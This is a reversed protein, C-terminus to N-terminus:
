LMFIKIGLVLFRAWWFYMRCKRIGHSGLFLRQSMNPLKTVLSGNGNGAPPQSFSDLSCLRVYMPRYFSLNWLSLQSSRYPNGMGRSCQPLMYGTRVGLNLPWGHVDSPLVWVAQCGASHVIAILHRHQYDVLGSDIFGLMVQGYNALDATSLVSRHHTSIIHGVYM